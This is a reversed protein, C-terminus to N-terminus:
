EYGIEFILWPMTLSLEECKVLSIDLSDAHCDNSKQKM